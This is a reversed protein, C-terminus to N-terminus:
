GEFRSINRGVKRNSQRLSRKIVVVLLNAFAYENKRKTGQNQHRTWVVNMRLVFLCERKIMLEAGFGRDLKRIDFRSRERRVFRRFLWYLIRNHFAQRRRRRLLRPLPARLRITQAATM